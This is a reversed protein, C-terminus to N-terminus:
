KRLHIMSPSSADAAMPDTMSGCTRSSSWVDDMIDGANPDVMDNTDAMSSALSTGKPWMGL